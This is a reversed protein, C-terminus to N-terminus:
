YTKGNYTNYDYRIIGVKQANIEQFHVLFLYVINFLINKKM